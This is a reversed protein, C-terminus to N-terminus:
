KKPAVKDEYFRHMDQSLEDLHDEVAFHDANLRHIEAKPLYKLFAEGGKVPLAESGWGRLSFKSRATSNPEIM